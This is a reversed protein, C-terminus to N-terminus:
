VFCFRVNTEHGNRNIGNEVAILYDMLLQKSKRESMTRKSETCLSCEM